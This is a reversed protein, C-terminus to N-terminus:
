FFSTAPPQLFSCLSSSSFKYEEGLIILIILDLLILHASCTAHIPFISAYLISTPFDSPFLSSPLCLLLYPIINFHIKSLYSKATHVPNIQSLIPVLLLSKHVLYHFKSIWLGNPFEQTIACSAVELSPSLEM